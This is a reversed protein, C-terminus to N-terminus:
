PKPTLIFVTELKEVKMALKVGLSQYVAEEKKEKQNGVWGILLGPPLNDRSGSTTIMMDEDLQKETLVRELTVIGGTSGVVEGEIQEGRPTIIVVPLRTDRNSVLRINATWRGLRDVVGVFAGEPSAVADGERLFGTNEILFSRGTSIVRVPRADFREVLEAAEKTLDDAANQKKQRNIAEVLQMSLSVNQRELDGVRQQRSVVLSVMERGSRVLSAGRGVFRVSPTLIVEIGGRVSSMWGARDAVVLMLSVGIGILAKLLLTVTTTESRVMPIM